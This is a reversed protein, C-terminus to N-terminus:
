HQHRTRLVDGYLHAVAPLQGPLAAHRLSALQLTDSRGRNEYLRITGYLPDPRGFQSPNRNYGTEPDYFLNPDREGGHNWGRKYILDADVGWDAGVQRQVGVMTNLVTPQNYDHAIMRIFQPGRPVRGEIVDDNTVGRTPDLVFGPQGDNVFTSQLVRQGSNIQKAFTLNANPNSYYIGAGGRVSFRGDGLVDYNFGVRPSWNNLDRTDNKIGVNETFLGNDIIIDVEDLFPPAAIGWDLDYRLGLNVTLRDGLEWNDGFWIGFQPRPTDLSWHGCGETGLHPYAPDNQWDACAGLRVGPIGPGSKAFGQEFFLANEDLGSLDWRSSDNWADLPFRREMDEPLRSFFMQGRIARIWVASVDEKIYDAGFKFEHSGRQWTLDYRISPSDQWFDEPQNSKAGIQVGPFRYLPTLPVGDAPSHLFHYHYYGAKVEQIVSSSIVRTWTGTLGWNNNNLDSAGTPYRGSVGALRSFGGFPDIDYFNTFRVMMHDNNSIQYDGRGLLSRKTRQTPLTLQQSYGPPQTVITNPEREYEYNVFYHARGPVIPGGISSGVQQNSFPLVFGAVPDAANFRDHRFYGYLGGSTNNTGSRSIAQVQLGVSRGQTVDFLNTIVQFEAIADRTLGPQGFSSTGSIHQTIQQGDLNLQFQDDRATGPRGSTVDNATVGKMMMTMEMWNRGAIPLEEMQRRDINDSVSSSRTDVLPADGTVTLTETLGGVPLVFGLNANQGVLSEFSPVEAAAFGSLEARVNYTGAAVGALRYDGQENTVAMYQRGTNVETATVTVGPLVGGSEDTVSGLITAGTQAFALASLAVFALALVCRVHFM